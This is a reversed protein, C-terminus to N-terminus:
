PLLEDVPLSVDPRRLLAISQGRTFHQVSAYSCDAPNGTPNQPDRYVEVRDARVNVIWYDAVGHQAYMRLKVGSDKKYTTHSVEIVLMPAPRQAEPTGIPVDFWLFDPDPENYEDLRLTGQIILWDTPLELRHLLRSCKSVAVMHPDRQAPMRYIRGNILEALRDGFVGADSMKEYEAATFRIKSSTVRTM